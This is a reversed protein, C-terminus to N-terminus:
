AKKEELEKLRHQVKRLAGTKEELERDRAYLRETLRESSAKAKTLEIGQTETLEKAEKLETVLSETSSGGLDRVEQQSRSLEKQADKLKKELAKTKKGTQTNPPNAELKDLKAKTTGYNEGMEFYM